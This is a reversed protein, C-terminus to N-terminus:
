RQKRGAIELAFASWHTRPLAPRWEESRPRTTMHCAPCHHYWSRISVAGRGTYVMCTHLFKRETTRLVGAVHQGWLKSEELMVGPPASRSMTGTILEM